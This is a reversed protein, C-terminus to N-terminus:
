YTGFEQRQSPHFGGNSSDYALYKSYDIPQNQKKKIALATLAALLLAGTAAMTAPAKAHAKQLVSLSEQANQIKAHLLRERMRVLPALIKDGLAHGGVGGIGAAILPYLTENEAVKPMSPMSPMKPASSPQASTSGPRKSLGPIKPPEGPKIQPIGAVSPGPSSVRPNAPPAPIGSASPSYAGQKQYNYQQMAQPYMQSFYQMIEDDSIGTDQTAPEPAPPMPQADPDWQPVQVGPKRSESFASLGGGLLGLGGLIAARNRWKGGLGTQGSWLQKSGRRLKHQLQTGLSPAYKKQIEKEVLTPAVSMVNSSAGGRVPGIVPQSIRRGAFEGPTFAPNVSHGRATALERAKQELRQAIRADQQPSILAEKTLLASLKRLDTM